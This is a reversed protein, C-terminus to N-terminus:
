KDRVQRGVVRMRVQLVTGESVDAHGESTGMISYWCYAEALKRWRGDELMKVEVDAGGGQGM